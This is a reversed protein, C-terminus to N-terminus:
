RERMHVNGRPHLSRSSQLLRKSKFSRLKAGGSRHRVQNCPRNPSGEGQKKGFGDSARIGPMLGLKQPSAHISIFQNKCKEVLAIGALGPMARIQALREFANGGTLSGPTRSGTAVIDPFERQM